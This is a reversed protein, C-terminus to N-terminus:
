IPSNEYREIIDLYDEFDSMANSFDEKTQSKFGEMIDNKLKHKRYVNLINDVIESKSQKKQVAIKEIFRLNNQNITMSIANKTEM